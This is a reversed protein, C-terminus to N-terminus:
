GRRGSSYSRITTSTGRTPTNTTTGSTTTGATPTQVTTAGTTTTGTTPTQTTSASTSTTNGRTGTITNGRTGTGAPTIGMCREYESRPLGACKDLQLQEEITPVPALQEEIPTETDKGLDALQEEAIKPKSKNLLYYAVGIIAGVTVVVGIKKFASM